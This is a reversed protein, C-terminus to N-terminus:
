DATIAYSARCDPVGPEVLDHRAASGTVVPGLQLSFDFQFPPQGHGHGTVSFAVACWLGDCSPATLATVSSRNYTVAFGSAARAVVLPADFAFAACSGPLPTLHLTHSGVCAEGPPRDPPQALQLVGELADRLADVDRDGRWDRLASALRRTIQRSRLPGGGCAPAADGDPVAEADPVAVAQSTSTERPPDAPQTAEVCAPVAPALVMWGLWGLRRVIGM